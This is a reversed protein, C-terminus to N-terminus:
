PIALLRDQRSLYSRCLGMENSENRSPHVPSADCERMTPLHAGSYLLRTVVPGPTGREASFQLKSYSYALHRTGYM